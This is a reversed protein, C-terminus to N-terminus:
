RDSIHLEEFVNYKNLDELIAADIYKMLTAKDAWMFEEHEESLLVKSDSCQCLYALIVVQRSPDTHFTSAYLLKDITVSLSVEEMIERKLGHELDEGFDLKGGVFEWIGAGYNDNKSRKIILVKHDHVIMGKLAIIIKNEM